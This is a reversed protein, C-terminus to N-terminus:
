RAAAAVLLLRIIRNRLILRNLNTNGTDADIAAAYANLAAPFRGDFDDLETRRIAEEVLVDPASDVQQKDLQDLVQRQFPSLAPSALDEIVLHPDNM